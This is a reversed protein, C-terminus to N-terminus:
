KDPLGIRSLYNSFRQCLLERYLFPIPYEFHLEKIKILYQVSLSFYHKFDVVSNALHIEEPFELTHYRPIENNTLNKYETTPNGKKNKRNFSRANIQLHQLHEGRLFLDLNYLPAALVSVLARDNIGTSRVSNDERLDCDQSLIVIYPYHVRSIELTNDVEEWNEIHIINSFVDGQNIRDNKNRTINHM